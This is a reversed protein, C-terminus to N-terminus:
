DEEEEVHADDPLETGPGFEFVAQWPLYHTRITDEHLVSGERTVTRYVVVDMGDAEFDVQEIKGEPLDPNERYVPEPAEKFNLPGSSSWQVARGDSTSYFKWQLQSNGYIYTEMLIWYPSDNTFKFDVRPPFVTADMGPGPSGPGKEYYTVRYAHAYREDIQYGGFFAARFLTTSVQCVGGGVGKITRDGYIILAEAYGTDLSIDGLIEAMSVTEGPAILLGHFEAASIVINQIRNRSSGGFYTSVTVVNETIGLSEATANDLAPPDTLDFALPIQHQGAVVGANIAEISKALNLVRGIVASRLLDLQRTEDNFIFRANEPPRELGPALPLLFGALQDPDLGVVYGAGDDDIVRQFRLMAALAAPEFVWPGAGDATLTLPASLIARALAAQQSADLVLPPSEDVVLAVEADYLRSVIPSVAELTAPVDLSRGIQGQAVTVDLGQVSLSAEILPRDIEAAIDQLYAAGIREDLVVRVPLPAGVFWARLQDAMRVGLWGERGVALAQRAMSSVDIVVGLQAPTTRWTRDADRLILHGEQPYTLSAGLAIEAAPASLGALSVGGVTVGPLIRGAYAVRVGLLFLWTTALTAAAAGVALLGIRRLLKAPDTALGPIARSLNMP